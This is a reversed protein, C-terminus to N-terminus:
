DIASPRRVNKGKALWPWDIVGGAWLALWIILPQAIMRPIHYALAWGGRPQALDLLMHNINAPWVCLAYIALGIAGAKRLALSWPQVLALAGAFEALGTLLVVAEPEPVWGPMIHLFPEPTTLHFWGALAYSAALLWRAACRIL